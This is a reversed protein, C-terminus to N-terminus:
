LYEQYPLGALAKKAAMEYEGLLRHYTRWHMGKPKGWEGSDLIGGPWGLRARISDAKRMARERPPERQSRYVLRYCHRCAFVGGCYLLAVRRGCGRAPCLFWCREGGMHCSSYDLHVLHKQNQWSMEHNKYRYSLILWNMEARLHIAAKINEHHSWTIRGEAGPTLLGNRNLWRIDISYYRDTTSAAVRWHLGSGIGGM